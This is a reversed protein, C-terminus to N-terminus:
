RRHRRRIALAIPLPLILGLAGGDEAGEAEAAPGAEVLDDRDDEVKVYFRDTADTGCRDSSAVITYWGEADVSVQFTVSSGTATAPGTDGSLGAGPPREGLAISIACGSGEVPDNEPDKVTVVVSFALGVRPKGRAAAYLHLDAPLRVVTLTASGYAFDYNDDSGGSCTIPYAGVDFPGGGASCTPLDDIVSQSEGNVFGTITFPFALPRGVEVTVDQPRVTLGAKGVTLAGSVYRFDYNEDEGEGCSIVYSGVPSAQTALTSCSPETGLDSPDDGLVFGRYSFTLRPNQGGYTRTQADAIVELSAKDVTLNATDSDSGLEGDYSGTVEHQGASPPTCTPGTCDAGSFGTDKTVDGMSNGNTDVAIASYAQSGGYTITAEGPQIVIHDFAADPPAQELVHLVATDTEGQYTATITYDGANAPSCRNGSCGAGSITADDTVDGLGTGDEAFAAVSYTQSRGVEITSSSPSLTIHDVDPVADITWSWSDSGTNGALDAVSVTFTHPGDELGFYRASGSVEQSAHPSRLSPDRLGLASGCPSPAAGDLSCAFGTGLESSTFTFSADSSDTEREPGSTIEVKPAKGDVVHIVDTASDSAGHTDTVTLRLTYDGPESYTHSLELGGNHSSGDGFDWRRSLSDGDPDGSTDVISVTLPAGGSGPSASFAARPASNPGPETGDDDPPPGTGTGDDPGTGGTPGGGDTGEGDTGVGDPGEGDPGEESGPEPEESGEDVCERIADLDCQNFTIWDSDLIEASIPLIAGFEGGAGVTVMTGASVDVSGVAGIATVVGEFVAITTSGDRNLLIAYVTGRVSATAAPTTIDFRSEPDSLEAVHNYTSGTTQEAAIVKSESVNALLELTRLTFTSSHDMRTISGDFYEVAARGDPATRVTDGEHLSQGDTGPISQGEAQSVEVSGALVRLTAIQKATASGGSFFVLTGTMALALVILVTM